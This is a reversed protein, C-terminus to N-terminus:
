YQKEYLALRNPFIQNLGNSQNECEFALRAACERNIEVASLCVCRLTEPNKIEIRHSDKLQFLKFQITDFLYPIEKHRLYLETM